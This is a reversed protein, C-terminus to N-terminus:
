DRNHQPNSNQDLINRKTKPAAMDRLGRYLLPKLTRLWDSYVLADPCMQGIVARAPPNQVALEATSPQENMDLMATLDCVKRM